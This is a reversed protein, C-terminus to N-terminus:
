GATSLKRAVGIQVRGGDPTSKVKWPCKGKKEEGAVRRAPLSERPKGSGYVGDSGGGVPDNEDGARKAGHPDRRPGGKIRAHPASVSSVTIRITIAARKIEGPQGNISYAARAKGASDNM